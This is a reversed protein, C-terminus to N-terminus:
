EAVRDLANYLVNLLLDVKTVTLQNQLSKEYIIIYRMAKSLVITEFHVMYRKASM